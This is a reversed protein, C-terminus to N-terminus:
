SWLSVTIRLYLQNSQYSICWYNKYKIKFMKKALHHKMSGNCKPCRLPMRSVKKFKDLKTINQKIGNKITWSKGNEEWIDGEEHHNFKKQYGVQFKTKKTFDKNILNRARQVDSQKFEKKLLSYKSM